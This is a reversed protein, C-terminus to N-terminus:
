GEVKRAFGRVGQYYGIVTRCYSKWDDTDELISMAGADLNGCVPCEYHLIPTGYGDRVNTVRNRPMDKERLGDQSHNCHPCYFYYRM